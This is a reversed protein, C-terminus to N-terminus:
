NLEASFLAALASLQQCAEGLQRACAALSWSQGCLGCRLEGSDFAETLRTHCQPCQITVTSQAIVIVPVIRGGQRPIGTSENYCLHEGPALM